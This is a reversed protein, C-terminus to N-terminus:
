EIYRENRRIRRITQHSVGRQRAVVNILAGRALDKRIARAENNTLKAMGDKEGRHDTGDRLKDAGNNQSSTGYSLNSLSNDARGQLGHLAELGAPCPGRFAELVLLHVSVTHEKHDKYLGVRLYGGRLSQRMIRVPTPSLITKSGSRRWYSRVRGLDSVDYGEYDVGQYIVPLWREVERIQSM